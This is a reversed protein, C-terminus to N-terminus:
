AAPVNGHRSQTASAPDDAGLALAQVVALAQARCGAPVCVDLLGCAPLGGIGGVLTEGRVLAHIGAHALAHRVLHADILNAAEYVVQMPTGKLFAYRLM